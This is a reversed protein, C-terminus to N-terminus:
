CIGTFVCLLCVSQRVCVCVCPCVHWKHIKEQIRGSGHVRHSDVEQGGGKQQGQHTTQSCTEAWMHVRVQIHYPAHPVYIDIHCWPHKELRWLEWKPDWKWEHARPPTDAVPVPPSTHRMLVDACTVPGPDARATKKWVVVSPGASGSSCTWRSHSVKILRMSIFILISSHVIHPLFEVRHEWRIWRLLLGGRKPKPWVYLSQGQNIHVHHWILTKNDTSRRAAPALSNDPREFIVEPFSVQNWLLLIATKDPQVDTPFSPHPSSLLFLFSLHPKTYCKLCGQCDQVANSM